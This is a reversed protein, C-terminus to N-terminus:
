YEPVFATRCDFRSRIEDNFFSGLSAAKTFAVWVNSPMGCYHYATGNLSIIAYDNESDFFAADVLSSSIGDLYEFRPNAIDVSDSRYKVNLWVPTHAPSAPIATDPAVTSTATTTATSLPRNSAPSDDVSVSSPSCATFAVSLIVAFLTSIRVGDTYTADCCQMDREM